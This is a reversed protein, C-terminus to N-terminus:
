QEKEKNKHQSVADLKSLLYVILTLLLIVAMIGGMGQGMILFAQKLIESM